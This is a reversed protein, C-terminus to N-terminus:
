LLHKCRICIQPATSTALRMQLLALTHVPVRESFPHSQLTSEGPAPGVCLGRPALKSATGRLMTQAAEQRMCQRACADAPGRHMHSAATAVLHSGGPSCDPVALSDNTGKLDAQCLRICERRTWATLLERLLWQAPRNTLGTCLAQHLSPQCCHSLISLISKAHGRRTHKPM